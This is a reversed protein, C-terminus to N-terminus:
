SKTGRVTIGSESVDFHELRLRAGQFWGKVEKATHRHANAPHYWDFNILNNEDFTFRENWFCKLIHYYVFRQLDYRGAKVELEPIDKYIEFEIHLDSLVKGLLTM